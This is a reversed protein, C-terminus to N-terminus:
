RANLNVGSGQPVPIVPINGEQGLKLLVCNNESLVKKCDEFSDFQTRATENRQKQAENQAVAEQEAELATKINDPPVPAQITLSINQFYNEGTQELMYSKTLRSVENEWQEKVEPDTYLEQYGYQKSAADLAKELPQKMYVGLMTNWGERPAGGKMDAKFKNGIQEHFKRLQECNETLDFTAVGSVTMTVNDNSVVSIPATDGDASFAYTRQGKPYVYHEDGPGDFNRTEAGVCNSFKASSLAGGKYHLAQEDAQTNVSSCGAVALILMACIIAFLRKM